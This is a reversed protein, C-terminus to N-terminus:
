ASGLAPGGVTFEDGGTLVLPGSGLERGDITAGPGSARLRLSTLGSAVEVHILGPEPFRRALGFSASSFVM